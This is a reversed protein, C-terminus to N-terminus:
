ASVVRFGPKGNDEGSTERQKASGERAQLSLPLHAPYAEAQHLEAYRIYRQTTLFRAHGMQQQLARDSVKGDNYTAHSRRVDHFGYVHCAPTHEHKEPCPLHIGAARQLRHLVTELTRRDHNWPFVRPEVRPLARLFDVAGAVDHPMDRKGKHDRGRSWLVGTELDVDEWRLALLAGIRMGTVWTTALLARWWVGPEIGHHIRPAPMAAQDCADMLANFHEERMFRKDKEPGQVRPLKPVERLYNWAKATSLAAGIHRLEKRVTDPSLTDGQKKGPMKLRKAAYQDVWVNCFNPSEAITRYEILRLSLRNPPDARPPPAQSSPPSIRDGTTLIV